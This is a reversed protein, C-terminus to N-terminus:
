IKILQRQPNRASSAARYSKLSGFLYFYARRWLRLNINGDDATSDGRIRRM